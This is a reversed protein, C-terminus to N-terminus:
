QDGSDDDGCHPCVIRGSNIWQHFFHEVGSAAILMILLCLLLKLIKQNQAYYWAFALSLFFVLLGIVEFAKWLQFAIDVKWEDKLLMAVILVLLVGGSALILEKARYKETDRLRGWELHGDEEDPFPRIKNLKPSPRWFVRIGNWLVIAAFLILPLLVTSEFDIVLHRV